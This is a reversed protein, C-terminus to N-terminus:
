SAEMFESFASQDPSRGDGYVSVLERAKRELYALLEAETAYGRVDPASVSFPVCPTGNIALQFVYWDSDQPDRGFKLLEVGDSLGEM